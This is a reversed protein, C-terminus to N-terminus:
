EDQTINHTENAMNILKTIARQITIRNGKIMEQGQLALVVRRATGCLKLMTNICEPEKKDAM